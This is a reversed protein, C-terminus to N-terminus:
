FIWGGGRPVVRLKCIRGGRWGRILGEDEGEAVDARLMSRLEIGPGDVVLGPRFDLWENHMGAFAVAHDKAVAAAVLMGDVQVAMCELDRADAFLLEASQHLVDDVDHRKAGNLHVKNGVIGAIREHVAMLLQVHIVAKHLEDLVCSSHGDGHRIVGWDTPFFHSPSRTKFLTYRNLNRPTTAINAAPAKPM